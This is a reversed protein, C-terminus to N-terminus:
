CDRQEYQEDELERLKSVELVSSRIESSGKNLVAKFLSLNGWGEIVLILIAGEHLSILSMMALVADYGARGRACFGCADVLVGTFEVM